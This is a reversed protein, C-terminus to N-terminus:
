FLLDKKEYSTILNGLNIFHSFRTDFWKAAYSRPNNNNPPIKFFYNMKKIVEDM